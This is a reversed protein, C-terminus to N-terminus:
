DALAADMEAKSFNPLSWIKTPNKLGYQIQARGIEPLLEYSAKSITFIMTRTKGNSPFRAIPFLRNEINLVPLANSVPFEDASAVTLEIADVGYSGTIQRSQKVKRPRMWSGRRMSSFSKARPGALDFPTSLLSGDAPLIMDPPTTEAPKADMLSVTEGRLLAAAAQIEFIERLTKHEYSSVKHSEVGFRVHALRVTSDGSLNFVFRVGRVKATAFAAIPIRVTQVLEANDNPPGTLFTYDRISVPQSLSDDTGVLHVSFDVPISLQQEADDLARGVRFDLFDFRSHDSGSGLDAFNVQYFRDNGPATWSVVAVPPEALTEHSVEVNSSTNMVGSSSQGTPATFDDVRLIQTLDMGPVFDRDVNTISSFTTPLAYATDFNQSLEPVRNEGVHSRFFAMMSQNAISQQELSVSKTEDFIPKHAPSGSCGFSDSTQWETNFYNHNAGWVMMLSKPTPRIEGEKKSSYKSMMREFPLRGQMDNVDGDCLPLMQTWAVSPADLVRNSQGDVAGIEFIAKIDLEPLLTSWQSGPDRYLNLAARAGEGGRSHGMIGVNTLDVAGVFQDPEGLTAPAGGAKSWDSWLQLHRLIMRGRALILGWDESSGGGCTIGRNANISVVLYGWSALNEAVYNYGEHNPTVVYGSPCTGENTYECSSDNRPATGSGCTGHNGHLFLLLPLKKAIRGTTSDFIDAPWFARAWIETAQGALVDADVAPAMRYEKTTTLHPGKATM